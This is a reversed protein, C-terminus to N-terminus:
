GNIVIKMVLFEIGGLHAAAVLPYWFNSNDSKKAVQVKATVCRSCIFALVPIIIQQSTNAVAIIVMLQISKKLVVASCCCAMTFLCSSSMLTINAMTSVDTHTLRSPVTSKISFLSSDTKSFSKRVMTVSAAM